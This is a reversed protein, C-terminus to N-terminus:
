QWTDLAINNAGMGSSGVGANNCLVQVKGYAQITAEAARDRRRGSRRRRPQHRARRVRARV